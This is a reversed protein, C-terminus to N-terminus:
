LVFKAKYDDIVGCRRNCRGMTKSSIVVESHSPPCKLIVSVRIGTDSLCIFCSSSRIRFSHMVKNKATFLYVACECSIM